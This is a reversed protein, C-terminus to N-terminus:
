LVYNYDQYTFCILVCVSVMWGIKKHNFIFLQEKGLFCPTPGIIHFKTSFPQIPSPHFGKLWGELLHSTLILLPLKQTALRWKKWTTKARSWSWHLCHCSFFLPAFYWLSVRQLNIAIRTSDQHTIWCLPTFFIMPTLFNPRWTTSSSHHLVKPNTITAIFFITILTKQSHFHYIFPFHLVHFNSM